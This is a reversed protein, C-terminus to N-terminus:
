ILGSHYFLNHKKYKHFGHWSFVMYFHWTDNQAMRQQSSLKFCCPGLKSWAWVKATSVLFFLLRFEKTQLEHCTNEHKSDDPLYLLECDNTTKRCVKTLEAHFKKYNFSNAYCNTFSYISAAIPLSKRVSISTSFHCTIKPRSDSHQVWWKEVRSLYDAGKPTSKWGWFFDKIIWM